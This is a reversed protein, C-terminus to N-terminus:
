DGGYRHLQAGHAKLWAEARDTAACIGKLLRWFAPSHNMHRLHAVEHAALYDLVFPPAFILRWSFNLAGRSSCSGWRSATDKLAVGRAPLGLATCYKAVALELDARAQQRLFDRLRREVHAAGGPVRLEAGHEGQAAEVLGRLRTTLVIEHEIGRFPIRAGAAFPVNQPLQRMRAGIWGAHREAFDQAARISGRLPMTLVLDQNAARLRLTYRKAAAVRKLSVRYAAGEHLIEIERPEAKAPSPKKAAPKPADITKSRFLRLM